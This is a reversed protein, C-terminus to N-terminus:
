LVKYIVIKKTKEGQDVWLSLEKRVSRGVALKEDEGKVIKVAYRAEQPINKDYILWRREAYFTIRRDAVAVIDERGTNDKLWKAATRFGRKDAGAPRLLKPLCIMAGILLLILSLRPKRGKFWDLKHVGALWDEVVQLGDCIYFITFAVLPFSWRNSMHAEVYCYRCVMLGLNVLIFITVLFRDEHKARHRLRYYLGALLAPVFFWMLNEGITKFVEGLAKAIDRRIVRAAYHNISGTNDEPVDIQGPAADFSLVKFVHTANPSIINGTYKMYPLAPLAFGVLLLALAALSRCRGMEGVRPSFMGLMLWAFGYVVLQACAPRIWYGIGASLGAPGFACWKGQRAGWLLFLFGTSLFLMHPWERTVECAMKAPHPLLILILMAYFSKKSGVLWKGILYLPVLGLLRCLLTISQASYIWTFVSSNHTFLTVFEHTAFILFPYGPPHAKVISAPDSSLKQAREIYYVGDKVILVTTAILYVGLASAVFILILLHIIDHKHEKYKAELMAAM